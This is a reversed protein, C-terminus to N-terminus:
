SRRGPPERRTQAVAPQDAPATTPEAEDHLESAQRRILALAAAVGGFRRIYTGSWPLEPAADVARRTVKPHQQAYRALRQLVEEDTAGYRLQEHRRRAALFLERDIIGEFAGEVRIVQDEPNARTKAGLRQRSKNYVLTGIYREDALMRRVRWENWRQAACGALEGRNLRGTIQRIGAKEEVFAHFIARVSAVEEPPGPVLTVRDTALHKQEGHELVQGLKGSASVLQRRYGFGPTAGTWFGLRAIRQKGRAIKRSLEESYEAAMVRKMSKLLTAMPTGDNTFPEGCYHVEVGAQRCLYEYYASEDVDQFRGWRSVDLVLVAQFDRDSRAVDALLTQLGRRYAIGLGSQGEDSYTRVVEFGHAAAFMDIGQRQNAPSYQQYDTSM